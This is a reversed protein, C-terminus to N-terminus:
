GGAFGELAIRTAYYTRQAAPPLWDPVYTPEDAIAVVGVTTRDGAAHVHDTVWDLFGDIFRDRQDAADGSDFLGWLVLVDATVTRQRFTVSSPYVISERIRDVFACPALISAPRARYTQITLSSDDAYDRVLDIAAARLQTTFPIRIAV